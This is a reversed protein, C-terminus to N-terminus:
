RVKSLISLLSSIGVKGLQCFHWQIQCFIQTKEKEELNELLLKRTIKAKCLTNYEKFIKLTKETDVLGRNLVYWLDFLDRGKRRQYMAKIKSAILEELQYTQLTAKGSFWESDVSHEKEIIPFIQFHDITNIEIKVKSTTGDINEYKYVLKASMNSFKRKPTGLWPDLAKRIASFTDGVPKNNKQVFDLDESYRAAPKFFLKNLATGGRFILEKKVVENGYLCVLAKSLVLDQEVMKLEKWPAKTQRWHKLIDIRIM